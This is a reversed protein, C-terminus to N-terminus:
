MEAMIQIIWNIRWYNILKWMVRIHVPLIIKCLELLQVDVRLIILSPQPAWATDPYNQIVRFKNVGLNCSNLVPVMCITVPTCGRVVGVGRVGGWGVWRVGVYTVNKQKAPTGTNAMSM